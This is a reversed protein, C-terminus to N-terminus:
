GKKSNKTSLIKVLKKLFISFLDPEKKKPLIPTLSKLIIINM